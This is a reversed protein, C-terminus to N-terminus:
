RFENLKYDPLLVQTFKKQIQNFISDADTINIGEHKEPVIPIHDFEKFYKDCNDCGKIVKKSTETLNLHFGKQNKYPHKFDAVFNIEHETGKSLKHVIRISANRKDPLIERLDHSYITFSDSENSSYEYIRERGLDDYITEQGTKMNDETLIKGFIPTLNKISSKTNIEMWCQSKSIDQNIELSNISGSELYEMVNDRGFTKIIKTVCKNYEISNKVMILKRRQKLLLQVLSANDLERLSNKDM